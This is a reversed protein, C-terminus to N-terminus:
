KTKKIRFLQIYTLLFFTIAMMTLAFFYKWMDWDTAHDLAQKTLIESGTMPCVDTFNALCFKINRFENVTLVNSSYRVASIWQIWSLWDFVSDLEVLFGSFVFMVVFTLVVVILAVALL